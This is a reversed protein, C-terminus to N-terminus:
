LQEMTIKLIEKHKNIAKFLDKRIQYTLATNYGYEKEGLQIHVKTEVFTKIEDLNALQSALAKYQLYENHTM